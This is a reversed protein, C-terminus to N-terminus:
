RAASWTGRKYGLGSGDAFSGFIGEPFEQTLGAGIVPGFDSNKGVALSSCIVSGVKLNGKLVVDGQPAYILSQHINGAIDVLEGGSFIHGNFDVNNAIVLNAEKVVLNATMDVNGKINLASDGAYYVSLTRPDSEQKNIKMNGDLILSSEVYLLLRGKEGVNELNIKVNGELRLDKVVLKRTGGQLNVTIEQNATATINDFYGDSDINWNTM